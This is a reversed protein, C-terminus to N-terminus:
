KVGFCNFNKTIPPTMMPLIQKKFVILHDFGIKTEAKIVLYIYFVEIEGYIVCNRKLILNECIELFMQSLIVIKLLNVLYITCISLM